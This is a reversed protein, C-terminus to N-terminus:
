RKIVRKCLLFSSPNFGVLGSILSYLLTLRGAMSLLRSTWSNLRRTILPILPDRRRISFAQLLTAIGLLTYLSSIAISHIKIASIWCWNASVPVYCPPRKIIWELGLFISSSRLSRFFVGSLHNLVQWLYWCTMPLCVYAQTRQLGSSLQSSWNGTTKNLMHSLVNM